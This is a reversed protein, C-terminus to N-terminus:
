TDLFDLIVKWVAEDQATMREWDFRNKFAAREADATLKKKKLAKQYTKFFADKYAVADRTYNPNHRKGDVSYFTINERDSLAERMAAFHREYSVIPDDTSHIILAKASANQLTEVADIYAYRPKKEAEERYIREGTKKMVGGFSQALIAALSRFGAIAVLHSIEPHFAAINLTSFAGWSHGAVSLDLARFEEERKLATLADDLDMLSQCLGGTDVGGSEMCGTHDYAFVRFGHRALLEIEKMYGRHGSGIGHDFVVLRDTRYGEYCYLYGSLMHGLSSRFPYARKQLGPFDEPAYYFVAGNEEARPYIKGQYIKKVTNYFM